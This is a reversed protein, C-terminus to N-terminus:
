HKPIEWALPGLVYVTIAHIIANKLVAYMHATCAPMKIKIDTMTFTRADALSITNLNM